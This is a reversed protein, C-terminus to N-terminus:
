FWYQKHFMYRNFALPIQSSITSQLDEGITSVSDGTFIDQLYRLLVSSKGVSVDGLIVIKFNHHYQDDAPTANGTTTAKEKGICGGM